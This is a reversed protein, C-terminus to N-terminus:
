VQYVKGDLIAVKNMDDLRALGSAIEAASFHLAQLKTELDGRDLAADPGGACLERAVAQAFSNGTGTVSGNCNADQLKATHLQKSRRPLKPSLCNETDFVGALEVSIQPTKRQLKQPTKFEVKHIRRPPTSPAARHAPKTDAISTVQPIPIPSADRIELPLERSKCCSTLGQQNARLQPTRSRVFSSRLALRAQAQSAEAGLLVTQVMHERTTGTSCSSLARLAGAVAPRGRSHSHRLAGLFDEELQEIESTKANFIELDQVAIGSIRRLPADSGESIPYILAAKSSGDTSVASILAPVSKCKDESARMIVWLGIRPLFVAM